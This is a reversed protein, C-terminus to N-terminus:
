RYFNGEKQKNINKKAFSFENDFKENLEIVRIFSRKM